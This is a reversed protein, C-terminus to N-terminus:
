RAGWLGRSPRRSLTAPQDSRPRDDCVRAPRGRRSSDHGCQLHLAHRRKQLYQREDLARGDRRAQILEAAPVGALRDDPTFLVGINQGIIEESGYGFMRQAGTNWSDITGDDTTTVIAYDIVSDIMVRMREESLRVELEALRRATVDQFMLVIGDIRDDTTRYPRIRMLYWRGDTTRVERDVPRLHDLAQRLDDELRDDVLRSTIDSLPRGVDTRLVNFIDQARPTTLKLQLSRDLFLTAIDTSNILNKFDNNSLRLEEIKIKLEQNVTTLEENVSQLEEKSTELEEASSRLEENMAQHEEASAQAEEVQAEYQEVVTRLQAKVRSLEDELQM